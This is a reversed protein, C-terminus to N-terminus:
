LGSTDDGVPFEIIKILLKSKCHPCHFVPYSCNMLIKQSCVPCDMLSM